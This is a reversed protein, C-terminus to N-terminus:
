PNSERTLLEVQEAALSPVQHSFTMVPGENTEAQQCRLSHSVYCISNCLVVACLLWPAHTAVSLGHFLDFVFLFVLSGSEPVLSCYSSQLVDTQMKWFLPMIYFAQKELWNGTSLILNPMLCSFCQLQNRAHSKYLIALEYCGWKESLKLRNQYSRLMQSRKHSKVDDKRVKFM